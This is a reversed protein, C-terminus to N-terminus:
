KIGYNKAVSSYNTKKIFLFINPINLLHSFDRLDALRRRGGSRGPTRRGGAGTDEGGVPAGGLGRVRGTVAWQGVTARWLQVPALKTVATVATSSRCLGPVGATAAM